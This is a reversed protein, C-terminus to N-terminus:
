RPRSVTQFMARLMMGLMRGTVASSEKAARPISGAASAVGRATGTVAMRPVQVKSQEKAINAVRAAVSYPKGHNLGSVEAIADRFDADAVKGGNVYMSIDRSGPDRKLRVDYGYVNMTINDTHHRDMIKSIKDIRADIKDERQALSEMVSKERAAALAKNLDREYGAKREMDDYCKAHELAKDFDVFDSSWGAKAGIAADLLRSGFARRERDTM